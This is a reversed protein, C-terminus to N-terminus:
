TNLPKAKKRIISKKISSNLVKRSTKVMDSVNHVIKIRVGFPLDFLNDDLKPTLNVNKRVLSSKLSGNRDYSLM